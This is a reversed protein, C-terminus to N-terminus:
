SPLRRSGEELLVGQPCLCDKEDQDDAVFVVMRASNSQFLRTYSSLTGVDCRDKRNAIAIGM